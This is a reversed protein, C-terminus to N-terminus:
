PFEKVIADHQSGRGERVKSAGLPRGSGEVREGGGIFACGASGGRNLRNSEEYSGSGSYLAKGSRM